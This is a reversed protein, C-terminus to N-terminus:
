RLLLWLLVGVVAAQPLIRWAFPLLGYEAKEAATMTIIPWWAFVLYTVNMFLRCGVLVVVVWGLIRLVIVAEEEAVLSVVAVVALLGLVVLVVVVDRWLHDDLKRRLMRAAQIVLLAFLLGGGFLM